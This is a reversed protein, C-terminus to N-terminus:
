GRSCRTSRSSCAPTRRWPRTSSGKCGRRAAGHGRGPGGPARDNAREVRCGAGALGRGAAAAQRRGTGSARAGDARCGARAPRGQVERGVAVPQGAVRHACARARRRHGLRAAQVARAFWRDAARRKGDAREPPAANTFDGALAVAISEANVDPKNTQSTQAELPQTAYVTGDGAVVFHYTTGPLGRQVAAQALREPPSPAPRSPTTSSSAASARWTARRTPPRAKRCSASRTWSRCDAAAAPTRAPAPQQKM